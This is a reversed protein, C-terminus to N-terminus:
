YRKGIEEKAICVWRALRWPENQVTHTDKMILEVNCGKAADLTSAIDARAADENFSACILSPNPKRSFVAKRGLAEAMILQNCWPSVSVRRLRPIQLIHQMREHVPECCGYCNLGFRALIPLQYPFIFEGFMKPSVGVSEQSEAFGWMQMLPSGEEPSFSHTYAQGGSGTYGDLDNAQALIPQSEYWDLMRMKSERMFAMLKHIGEPNDYMYLFFEDLGILRIVDTTMGLTWYDLGPRLQVDLIGDFLVHAEDLRRDTEAGDHTPKPMALLSLDRDLNKLPHEWRYSGRNEGYSYAADVGYNGLNVAPQVYYRCEQAADDRLVDHWYIKQRLTLEHGRAAADKCLLDGEGIVEPWSGEPFCLVLPIGEKMDNHAYWRQRRQEMESSNAIDAFKRALECLIKKDQIEM